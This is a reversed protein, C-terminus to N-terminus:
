LIKMGKKRFSLKNILYIFLTGLIAYKILPSFINAIDARTSYIFLPIMYLYIIMYYQNRNSNKYLIRLLLGCILFVIIIGIVGGNLYGEGVLTFGYQTSHSYSFYTENFWTQNSFGTNYFIRVFDNLLSKGEFINKCNHSVLIQLNRGASIFEGDLIEVLLNNMSFTGSVNGSLMYYKFISSLPILMSGIPVMILLQGKSIKKFYFLIILTVLLFTFMYDREGTIIAFSCVVMGYKLIIWVFKKNSLTLKRFLMYCYLLIAFYTMSFAISFIMNKSAYIETKNAYSGRLIIILVICIFLLVLNEVAKLVGNKEINIDKNSTFKITYSPLVLLITSLAIWQYIMTEKSYGYKTIYGTLYLIPYASAYIFFFSSYWVYPNYIDFKGLACAIVTLFLLAGIHIIISRDSSTYLIMGSIIISFILILKNKNVFNNKM